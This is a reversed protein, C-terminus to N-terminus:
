LFFSCLVLILAHLGDLHRITDLQDWSGCLPLPPQFLYVSVFLFPRSSGLTAHEIIWTLPVM